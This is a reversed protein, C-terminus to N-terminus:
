ISRWRSSRRCSSRCTAQNAGKIIKDVCVAAQREMDPLSPGYSILGGAKTAERFASMVPLKHEAALKALRDPFNYTLVDSFHMVADIRESAMMTFPKDLDAPVHAEM